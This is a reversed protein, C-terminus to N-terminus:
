NMRDDARRGARGPPLLAENFCLGISAYSDCADANDGAADHERTTQPDSKFRAQPLSHATHLGNKQGLPCKLM